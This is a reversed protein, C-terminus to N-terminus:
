GRAEGGDDEAPETGAEDGGEGAAERAEEVRKPARAEVQELGSEIADVRDELDDRLARGEDRRMTRLQEIAEGLAVQVAEWADEVDEDTEEPTTFVDSFQLLHDLKVPESIGAAARLDDLLRKYQTAATEDVQLALTEEEAEEVQIHVNFRGREFAQKIHNQVNQEFEALRGPLRVSVDCHRKNVSRIEVTATVDQVSASGQGFGTMSTIM